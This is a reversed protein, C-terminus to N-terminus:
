HLASLVGIARAVLLAHLYRSHGDVFLLVYRAGSRSPIEVPGFIDTHIVDLCKPMSPRTAPKFTTRRKTGIECADCPFGNMEATFKLGQAMNYKQMKKLVFKSAHGFRRHLLDLSVDAFVSLAAPTSWTTRLMCLQNGNSPCTIKLNNSQMIVAGPHTHFVFGTGEKAAQVVSLLNM